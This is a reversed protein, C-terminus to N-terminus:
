EVFQLYHSWGPDYHYDIALNPGFEVFKQQLSNICEVDSVYYGLTQRPTNIHHRMSHTHIAYRLRHLAEDVQEELVRIRDFTESKEHSEPLTIEVYYPYNPDGVLANATENRRMLFPVSDYPDILEFSPWDWAQHDIEPYVGSHGLHQHWFEKYCQSFESISLTKTLHVPDKEFVVRGVKTEFEYEGLAYDLLLFVLYQAEELIAEPITKHTAITLAFRRKEFSYDLLIDDHGLRLGNDWDLYLDTVDCAQRFPYITFYQLRPASAAMKLVKEFLTVDGDATFIIENPAEKYIEAILEIGCEKLLRNVRAMRTKVPLTQLSSELAKFRQWFFHVNHIM